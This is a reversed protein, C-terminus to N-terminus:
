KNMWVDKARPGRSGGDISRGLLEEMRHLLDTELASTTELIPEVRCLAETLRLRREWDQPDLLPIRNARSADDEALDVVSQGRLSRYAPCVMWEDARRPVDLHTVLLTDMRGAVALAYRALVSDFWGYRVGGQWEGARNHDSVAARFANSETPLPGPGHRLAYARTVGVRCVDASPDVERLISNANRPTCHSWTTYPHLGADEDLLVGQAGEFIVAQTARLRRAAQEEPLLIDKQALGMVADMWRDGIEGFHFVSQEREWQGSEAAPPPLERVLAWLRERAQALKKRLSPLDVMDGARVVEAPNERSDRVTEGFGSGCSGHRDAGRALERLRNAAQHYPTTVPAEASIRLRDFGDTVGVCRLSKEEVLLATPHVAVFRSLFTRVGPVFTGSGFQSFTHHRGDPTVVNHGAQAGGNFRVVWEATHRRVLYDTILGKGGDGFGLDIVIWARL